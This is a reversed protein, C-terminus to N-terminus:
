SSLCRWSTKAGKGGYLLLFFKKNMESAQKGQPREREDRGKEEGARLKRRIM